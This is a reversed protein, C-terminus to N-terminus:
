AEEMVTFEVAVSDVGDIQRSAEVIRQELEDRVPWDESPLAVIVQAAAGAASAARLMGMQLLDVRLEPDIVAGVASALQDDIQSM